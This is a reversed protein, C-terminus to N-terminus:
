QAMTWSTSVGLLAVVVYGFAVARALAYLTSASTFRPKLWFLEIERDLTMAYDYLLVVSLRPASKLSTLRTITSGALKGAAAIICCTNVTRHVLGDSSSSPLRSRRRVTTGHRRRPGGGM